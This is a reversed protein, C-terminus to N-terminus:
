TSALHIHSPVYRYLHFIGSSWMDVWHGAVDRLKHIIFVGYWSSQDCCKALIHVINNPLSCLFLGINHCIVPLLYVTPWVPIVQTGVYQIYITLLRQDWLTANYNRTWRSRNGSSM